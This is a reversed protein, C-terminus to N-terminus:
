KKVGLNNESFTDEIGHALLWQQVGKLHEVHVLWM